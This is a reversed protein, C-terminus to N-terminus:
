FSYRAGFYFRRPENWANAEGFKYVGNGAALPMATTPTQKNLVNFIDLFLEVKQSGAFKYAYKVRMDFTYYSPGTFSGISGPLIWSDLVGGDVYSDGMVPLYRSSILQTKSYLVGSNWNFVGSLELGNDFFYTGYAKFQHKINGPQPGYANPARPDLAVWDGQFDATSDSNTNGKAENYTYSASGQWNDRKAKTLSVEIGQYDRKGGALTGIV